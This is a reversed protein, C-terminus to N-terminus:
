SLFLSAALIDQPRLKPAALLAECRRIVPRDAETVPLAALGSRVLNMPVDNGNREMYCRFEDEEMSLFTTAMERRFLQWDQEYLFRQNFLASKADPKEAAPHKLEVDLRGVPIKAYLNIFIPHVNAINGTAQQDFGINEILDVAPCIGIGDDVLCSFTWPYDWATRGTYAADFARAWYAAARPEGFRSFLFRTSRLSPWAKMSVDYKKWARRWSAWGWILINSTFYYSADGRQLGFQYGNGSVCRVRENDEYKELMEDCFRFFDPSPLCDDELIICREVQEFVWNLGSVVRKTCGLNKTAFNTQVECPWDVQTVIKRVEECLAPENPRDPRPGDAVILLKAPRARRVAEFVRATHNARNFVLMCVPSRAQYADPSSPRVSSVKDLLAKLREPINVPLNAAGNLPAAGLNKELLLRLTSKAPISATQIPVVPPHEGAYKLADAVLATTRSLMLEERFFEKARNHGAEGAARREVPNTAWRTISEVLGKVALEPQKSPDAVLCGTGEMEEAIGGVASAVVALRRAMAEMVTLPMGEFHSPLAFIDSVGYLDCVDWRHGLLRFHDGIGLMEIQRDLEAKIEGDGAWVFYLRSWIPTGKLLSAASLIHQFGKMATLRAASFCIVADDPISMETRLKARTEASPADFYKAPRGNHIVVGKEAPTGFLTRLCHLSEQSVAVVAYAHAHQKALVGLCGRFRDALHRAASHVVVLFPLGRLIVVHKAAINSVVCCDSFFVLDPKLLALIRDADATDTISRTFDNKADYGIWEHQIGAAQQEKVLPSASRPQVCTVRYGQAALALLVNHNYQAVGGYEPDDTYLVIHRPAEAM